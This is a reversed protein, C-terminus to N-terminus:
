THEILLTPVNHTHSKITAVLTNEKLGKKIETVEVGKSVLREYADKISEVEWALGWLSDNPDKRDKKEIVEITTKNLRFFLMRSKWHEIIRDLALRINFIDQYINIFGDADNTNIVVHDLRNISGPPFKEDQPLIGKTHEILFLFLNRTLEQPLFLYKWNRIDNTDKNKGEGTLVDGVLFGLDKLRKSAKSIDKTNLVIGALGEGNKKISEKVLDAGVGEGEASLLELYTNKFNFIVNATGLEKHLGRWSPEIGLINKYNKEADKLDEVALIIHDLSSIM